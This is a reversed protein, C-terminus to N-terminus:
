VQKIATMVQSWVVQVDRRIVYSVSCFVITVLVVVVITFIAFSVSRQVALGVCATIVPALLFLRWCIANRVVLRVHCYAEECAYTLRMRPSWLPPVNLWLGLLGARERILVTDSAVEKAAVFPLRQLISAITAADVSAVARHDFTLLPPGYHFRKESFRAAWLWEIWTGIWCVGLLGAGLIAVTQAWM